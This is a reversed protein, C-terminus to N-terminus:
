QAYGIPIEPYDDLPPDGSGSSVQSLRSPGDSVTQSVPPALYSRTPTSRPDIYGLAAALLTPNMPTPTTQATPTYYASPTSTESSRRPHRSNCSPSPSNDQSLRSPTPKFPKGSDKSSSLPSPHHPAYPSTPSQPLSHSRSLLFEDEAAAEKEVDILAQAMIPVTSSATSSGSVFKVSRNQHKYPTPPTYSNYELTRTSSSANRRTNERVELVALMKEKKKTRDREICKGWWIWGIVAALALVVGAVTGGVISAIPLDSRHGTPTPLATGNPFVTTTSVAVVFVGGPATRSANMIAPFPTVALTM